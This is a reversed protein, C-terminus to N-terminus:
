IHYLLTVLSVWLGAASVCRTRIIPLSISIFQMRTGCNSPHNNSAGTYSGWSDKANYLQRKWQQIHFDPKLSVMYLPTMNKCPWKFCSIACVASFVSSSQFWLLVGWGWGWGWLLKDQHTLKEIVLQQMCKVQIVGQIPPHNGLLSKMKQPTDTTPIYNIMTHIVPRFQIMSHTIKYVWPGGLIWHHHM